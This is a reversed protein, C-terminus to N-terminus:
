SRLGYEIINSQNSFM